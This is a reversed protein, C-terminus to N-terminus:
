NETNVSINIGNVEVTGSSPKILGCIINILTTKGFGRM